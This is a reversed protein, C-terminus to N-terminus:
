NVVLGVDSEGEDVPVRPLIQFSDAGEQGCAACAARASEPLQLHKRRHGNM